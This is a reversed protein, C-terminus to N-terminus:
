SRCAQKRCKIGRKNHSRSYRSFIKITGFGKRKGLTNEWIRKSERIIQEFSKGSTENELNEKAQDTSIYSIGVRVEVPQELSNYAVFVGIDRGAVSDSKEQIGEENLTGFSDFKKNFTAYFYQKAGENHEEWGKISNESEVHLSSNRYSKIVIKNKKQSGFKFRYLAARETTTWDAEINDDELYVNHHWPHVDELAHDYQSANVSRDVSVEGTLPMLDTVHGLRYAPQNFSIGYIKDSLYRDNLGPKTLSYVRVMSNPRHVTPNKTTLLYSVGGINPDVYQSVHQNNCAFFLFAFVFLLLCGKKM